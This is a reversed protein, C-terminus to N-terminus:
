RINLLDKVVAVLERYTVDRDFKEEACRRSNAGMTTRLEQNDMLLRIKEAVDAADGSKCNFGMQYEDVLKRYEPSEQTNIVPLGCAAYDGHKNIISAVSTGIIPNVTIDCECIKKCMEPYPLYGTFVTDVGNVKAYKEFESRKSGDGMVIFLPRNELMKIADIALCIDYSEDLSGCYAIKLREDENKKSQASNRDFAALNIGIFVPHGAKVKNNVSMAREVYTNSVACISDARRYISNAKKLLPFFALDSIIPVNFAMRYAEPWLDQIDIVLPINNDNAYKSVTNAVDLTPVVQYILDPKKHEKIYRLTNKAFVKSTKLREFSINKRYGPEEIFAVQYPLGKILEETNTRRSKTRQYFVSTIVELQIDPVNSLMDALQRYRNSEKEQKFHFYNTILLVRKMPENEGTQKKLINREMLMMKKFQV